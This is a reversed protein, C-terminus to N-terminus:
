WPAPWRVQTAPRAPSRWRRTPWRSGTPAVAWGTSCTCWGRSRSGANPPPRIRRFSSSLRAAVLAADTWGADLLVRAYRAEVVGIRVPDVDPDARLWSRVSEVIEVADGDHDSIAAILAARTFVEIVDSGALKEAGDVTPWLRRVRVYQRHAEDYAGVDEAAQAARLSWM